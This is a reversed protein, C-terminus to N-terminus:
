KEERGAMKGEKVGRTGNGRETSKESLPDQQIWIRSLIIKASPSMEYIPSLFNPAIRFYIERRGEERSM